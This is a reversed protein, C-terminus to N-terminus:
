AFEEAGTTVDTGLGTVSTGTRELLGVLLSYCSRATSRCGRVPRLMVASRKVTLDHAVLEM